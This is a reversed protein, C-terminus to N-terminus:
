GTHGRDDHAQEAEGGDVPIRWINRKETRSSLFAIWRGDPSWAPATASNEGRTLQRSETGDARALYIHTRWESTEEDMIASGVQFVVMRGDPSPVVGGVRKVQMALEPTWAGMDQAHIVPAFLLLALFPPSLRRRLM